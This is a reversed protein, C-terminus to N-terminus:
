QIKISTLCIQKMLDRDEFRTLRLIVAFPMDANLRIELIESTNPGLTTPGIEFIGKHDDVGQGMVIVSDYRRLADRMTWQIADRYSMVETGAVAHVGSAEGCNVLPAVATNCSM